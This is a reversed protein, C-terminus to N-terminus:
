AGDKVFALYESKGPMMPALFSSRLSCQRKSLYDIVFQRPMMCPYYNGSGIWADVDADTMCTESVVDFVIWGGTRTVRVMETLYGCTIIFPLYVFVKHAHALDVSGDSTDRLSKGDAEHATVHYTNVLWDSWQEDTEYIEYRTGTCLRQVKELYRGSGPGIECVAHVKRNFAGLAALQDIVAQTAGPLQFQLDLYDGVSLGAEQARRLTLGLPQYAMVYDRTMRRALEFGAPILLANLAKRVTRGLTDVSHEGRTGKLAHRASRLLRHRANSMIILSGVRLYCDLVVVLASM